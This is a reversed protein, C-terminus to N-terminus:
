TNALVSAIVIFIACIRIGHGFDKGCRWEQGNWIIENERTFLKKVVYQIRDEEQFIDLATIKHHVIRQDPTAPEFVFTVQKAFGGGLNKWCRKTL